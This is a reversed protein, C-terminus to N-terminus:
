VYVVADVDYDRCRSADDAKTVVSKVDTEYFIAGGRQPEPAFHDLMYAGIDGDFALTGSAMVFPTPANPSHMVVGVRKGVFETISM